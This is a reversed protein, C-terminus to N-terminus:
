GIKFNATVKSHRLIEEDYNLMTNSIVVPHHTIFFRCSLNENSITIDNKLAQNLTSDFQSKNV